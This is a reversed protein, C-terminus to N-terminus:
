KTKSEKKTTSKKVTKKEKQLSNDVTDVKDFDKALSVTESLVEIDVNDAIEIILTKEKVKKVVGFIGGATIIKDNPKLGAVEKEHEKQRKQQPRILLFYFIAIFIVLPVLTATFSQFQPVQESANIATETAFVENIFFM